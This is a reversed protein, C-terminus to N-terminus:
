VPQLHDSRGRAGLLGDSTAPWFDVVAYRSGADGDDLWSGGFISARPQLSGDHGWVWMNGTAQMGGVQSTRRADLGTSAPDSGCASREKVGVAFARFEAESMLGKGHHAMIAKATAYDLKHFLQGRPDLPLDRGDAITVGFRSTGETLHNVGLLYIDAWFKLGDRGVLAMGRPDPCAPRFTLDWVSNPNIAAFEDGGENALANGGPAFHFGGICGEGAPIKSGCARLATPFGNHIVIGYDAGVKLEHGKPFRVECNTKFWQGPVGTSARIAISRPGAVIFAPEDPDAKVLRDSMEREVRKARATM